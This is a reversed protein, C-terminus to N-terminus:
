ATITKFAFSDKSNHYCALIYKEGTLETKFSNIGTELRSFLQPVNDKYDQFVMVKILSKAILLKDFDFVIHKLDFSWESELVLGIESLHHPPNTRYWVLDYLWETECEDPFGSACVTYGKKKGLAILGRKIAATGMANTWGQMSRPVAELTSKIEAESNTSEPSTTM